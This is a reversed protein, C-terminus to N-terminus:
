EICSQNRIKKSGQGSRQSMKVRAFFLEGGPFQSPCAKEYTMRYTSGSSSCGRRNCYPSEVVAYGDGEEAYYEIPAKTTTTTTTMTPAATPDFGEKASVAGVALILSTTRM